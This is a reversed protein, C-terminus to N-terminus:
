VSPSCNIELSWLVPITAVRKLITAFVIFGNELIVPWEITREGVHTEAKEFKVQEVETIIAPIPIFVKM